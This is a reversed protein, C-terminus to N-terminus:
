LSQRERLRQRVLTEGRRRKAVWFPSGLPNGYGDDICLFATM